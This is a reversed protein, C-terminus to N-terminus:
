HAYIIMCQIENQKYSFILICHKGSDPFGLQKCVVEAARRDFVNNPGDNCVTGWYDNVCIELRGKTMNVSGVLRVDGTNSCM